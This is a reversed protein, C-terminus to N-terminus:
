YIQFVCSINVKLEFNSEIIEFEENEELQIKECINGLMSRIQDGVKEDVWRKSAFASVM